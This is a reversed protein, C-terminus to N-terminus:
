TDSENLECPNKRHSETAPPSKALVQVNMFRPAYFSDVAKTAFFAVVSILVTHIKVM